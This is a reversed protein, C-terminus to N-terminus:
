CGTGTRASLRTGTLDLEAWVTKGTPEPASDWATALRDVLHLGRGGPELPRGSSDASTPATQSRDTVEIRLRDGLLELRAQGAPAGHTIANTALETLLVEATEILSTDVTTESLLTRLGARLEALMTSDAAALEATVVRTQGDPM